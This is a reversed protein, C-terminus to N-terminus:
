GSGGAPSKIIGTRMINADVRIFVPLDSFIDNWNNEVGKWYEPHYKHLYEGFGFIDSSYVRQAKEMAATIEKKIEEELTKKLVQLSEPMGLTGKGRYEGINAEAKVEVILASPENNEFDVKIKGKARIIEMALKSKDTTVSIVASKIKDTAFLYGRTEEPDLWGVLKGDRFVATGEAKVKREGAKTVQGVVPQIGSSGMIKILDILMTKKVTGRLITNEVTENIYVAPISDMDTEIELIEEPTSGKAVLINMEYDPEHDRHFFDLVEELNEHMLLNEGLILVQATNLYMKKDVVSLMNVTAEFVTEGEFSEVFVPKPQGGGISNTSSSGSLIASPEVVQVTLKVKGDKTRDLGLGAVINIDALDRNSWCGTLLLSFVLMLPIVAITTKKGEKRFM